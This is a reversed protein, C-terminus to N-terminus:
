LLPTLNVFESPQQCLRVIDVKCIIGVANAGDPTKGSRSDRALDLGMGVSLDSWKSRLGLFERQWGVCAGSICGKVVSLCGFAGLSAWALGAIGRNGLILSEASSSTILTALIGIQLLLNSAPNSM